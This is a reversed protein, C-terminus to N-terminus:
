PTEYGSLDVGNKFAEKISKEFKEQKSEEVGFTKADHLPGYGFELQIWPRDLEDSWARDGTYYAREKVQDLVAEAILKAFREILQEQSDWTESSDERAAKIWCERIRENM